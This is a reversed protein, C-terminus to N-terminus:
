GDSDDLGGHGDPYDYGDSDDLGGRGDPDSYGGHGCDDPDEDPAGSRSREYMQAALRAIDDQRAGARAVGLLIADAADRDGAPLKNTYDCIVKGMSDSVRGGEALAAAVLPHAQVRRSWGVRGAACGLTVGTKRLVWTRASGDGDAAPGQASVFAGLFWARAATAIATCQEMEILAGALEAATLATPDAAALYSEAARRMALAEAVSAPAPMGAPVSSPTAVSM